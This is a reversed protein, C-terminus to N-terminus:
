TERRLEELIEKIEQEDLGLKILKKYSKAFVKERKNRPLAKLAAIVEDRQASHLAEKERAM